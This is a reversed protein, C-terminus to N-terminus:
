NVVLDCIKEYSVNDLSNSWMFPHPPIFFEVRFLYSVSGCSLSPLDSCRKLYWGWSAPRCICPLRRKVLILPVRVAFENAMSFDTGGIVSQFVRFWLGVVITPLKTASQRRRRGYFAFTSNMICLTVFFPHHNKCLWFLCKPDLHHCPHLDLSCSPTTWVFCSDSCNVTHHLVYMCVYVCVCLICMYIYILWGVAVNLINCYVSCLHSSHRFIYPLLCEL